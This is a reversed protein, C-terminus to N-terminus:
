QCVGNRIALEATKLLHIWIASADDKLEQKAVKQIWPFLQEGKKPPHISDNSVAELLGDSLFCFQDGEQIAITYSEYSADKIIGILSGPQKVYEVEDMSSRILTYIGAPVYTLTKKTLDFEFGIMAAYTEESFLQNAQQNVWEFKEHLPIDKEMAQLFLVRVVSAQLATSLGHGMVDALYGVLKQQEPDWWYDYLDGSVYHSPRFITRLHLSSNHIEEPLLQRQINGALLMDKKLQERESIDSLIGAFYVPKKQDNLIANITLSQLYLEGNKRRNWIEGQWSGFLLLTTWMQCYFGRDHIGSKLIRPNRHIVDEPEFGTIKSYAPNVMLIKGDMDTVVIGERSNKFLKYSLKLHMEVHEMEIPLLCVDM